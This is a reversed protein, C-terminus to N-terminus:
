NYGRVVTPPDGADSDHALKKAAVNCVYGMSAGVQGSPHPTTPMNASNPDPEAHELTQSADQHEMYATGFTLM